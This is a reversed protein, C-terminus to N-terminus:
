MLKIQGLRLGEKNLCKLRKFFTLVKSFLWFAASKNSLRPSAFFLYSHWLAASKIRHWFLTDQLHFLLNIEKAIVRLAFTHMSAKWATPGPNSERCRCWRKRSKVLYEIVLGTLTHYVYRIDCPTIYSIYIVRQAFNYRM